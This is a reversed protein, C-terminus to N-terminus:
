WVLGIGVATKIENTNLILNMEFHAPALDLNISTINSFYGNDTVDNPLAIKKEQGDLFSIFYDSHNYHIYFDYAMGTRLEISSEINPESGFGFKVKYHVIPITVSPM